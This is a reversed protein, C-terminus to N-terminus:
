RESKQKAIEAAYAGEKVLFTASNVDIFEKMRCIKPTGSGKPSTFHMVVM